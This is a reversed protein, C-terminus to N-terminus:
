AGLRTCRRARRRILVMAATATDIANEVGL